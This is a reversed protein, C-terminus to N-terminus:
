NNEGLIRGKKEVMRSRKKEKKESEMLMKREVVKM